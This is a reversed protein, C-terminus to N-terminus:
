GISAAPLSGALHRLAAEAAAKTLASVARGTLRDFLIVTGDETRICSIGQGGSVARPAGAAGHASSTAPAPLPAAGATGTSRPSSPEVEPASAGTQTRVPSSSLGSSPLFSLIDASVSAIQEIM